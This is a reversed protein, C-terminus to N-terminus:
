LEDLFDLQYENPKDKSKKRNGIHKLKKNFLKNTLACYYIKGQKKVTIEKLVTYLKDNFKITHYKESIEKLVGIEEGGDDGEPEYVAGTEENYWLLKGKTTKIEICSVGEESDEENDSFNMSKTPVDDDEEEDSVVTEFSSEDNTRISSILENLKSVDKKPSKNRKKSSEKESLKDKGLSSEKQLSSNMLDSYSNEYNGKLLQSAYVSLLNLLKPNKHNLVLLIPNSVDNFVFNKDTHKKKAGRKGMNEFFDDTDKALWRTKDNEEKPLIDREFLKLKQPETRLHLHCLDNGEQSSKSCRSYATIKGNVSICYVDVGDKIGKYANGMTNYPVGAICCKKKSISKDKTDSMNSLLQTIAEEELQAM